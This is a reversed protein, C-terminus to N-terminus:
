LYEKVRNVDKALERLKQLCKYKQNKANDANTYGLRNAIDTMTFNDYYFMLLIKQCSDGLRKVLNMILRQRENIAENRELTDDFEVKELHTETISVNRTIKKLRTLWQNRCMSYFYTKISCNLKFGKSKFKEYLEILCEQFVDKADDGTGSNVIIFNRIMPFYNKYFYEFSEDESAQLGETLKEETWSNAYFTNSM